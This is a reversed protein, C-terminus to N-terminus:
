LAYFYQSKHNKRKVLQLVKYAKIKIVRNEM